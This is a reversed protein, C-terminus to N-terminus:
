GDVSTEFLKEMTFLGILATTVPAELPIPSAVAL